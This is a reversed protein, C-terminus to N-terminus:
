RSADLAGRQTAREVRLLAQYAPDDSFRSTLEALKAEAAQAQEPAERLLKYYEEAAKMMELYRESKQPVEVGMVHEAIDEVSRNAYEGFEEPDLTILEGPRLSQIIFPSHTTAIFQINPFSTRLKEVVERQWRPHLHLELEDILVVGHGALPDALEPNALALRRVLDGLLAIFAREGDSLQQLSIRAGAKNVTLRLPDEEVRVDTFGDLFQSLVRNFADLEASQERVWLRYRAMFDRYDVMRNSLAGHHALRQGTPLDTPLTRPLRYGARDTTFYVAVPAQDDERTPDGYNRRIQESVARSLGRARVRQSPSFTVDYNVPIGACLTQMELKTEQRGAHVDRATITRQDGTSLALARLQRALLLALGDLLSSKGRGNIGAIVVFRDGFFHKADESPFRKRGSFGRFNTVTLSRLKV